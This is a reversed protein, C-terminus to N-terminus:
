KGNSRRMSGGAFQIVLEAGPEADALDPTEFTRRWRASGERARKGQRQARHKVTAAKKAASDRKRQEAQEAKQEALVAQRRQKASLGRTEGATRWDQGYAAVAPSVTAGQEAESAATVVNAPPSSMPGNLRNILKGVVAWLQRKVDGPSAYGKEIAEEAADLVLSLEEKAGANSVESTYGVSELVLAWKDQPVEFIELLRRMAGRDFLARGNLVAQQFQVWIQERQAETLEAKGITKNVGSMRMVTRAKRWAADGMIEEYVGGPSLDHRRARDWTLEPMSRSVAAAIDTEGDVLLTLAQIIGTHSNYAHPTVNPSRGTLHFYYPSFYVAARIANELGHLKSDLGSERILRYLSAEAGGALHGFLKEWPALFSPARKDAYPGYLQAALENAEAIIEFQRETWRERNPDLRNMIDLHGPHEPDVSDAVTDVGITLGHALAYSVADEIAQPVDAWPIELVPRPISEPWRWRPDLGPAVAPAVRDGKRARFQHAHIRFGVPTEVCGPVVINERAQHIIDVFRDGDNGPRGSVDYGKGTAGFSKIVLDIGPFRVGYRKASENAMDLAQQWRDAFWKADVDPSYFHPVCIELWIPYGMQVLRAAEDFVPAMEAAHANYNFVRLSFPAREKRFTDQTRNRASADAQSVIVPRLERPHHPNTRNVCVDRILSSQEFTPAADRIDELMAWPERNHQLNGFFWGGGLGVSTFVQAARHNASELKRLYALGPPETVPVAYEYLGQNQDRLTETRLYLQPRQCWRPKYQKHALRLPYARGDDPPLKRRQKGYNPISVPVDQRAVASRPLPLVAAVAASAWLGARLSSLFRRERVM